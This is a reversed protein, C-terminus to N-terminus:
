SLLTVERVMESPIHFANIGEGDCLTQWVTVHGAKSGAEPVPILFGVTTVIMEGDDPFSEVDLWGAESCHADAWRIRVVAYESKVM